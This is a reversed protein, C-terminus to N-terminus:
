ECDSVSIMQAYNPTNEKGIFTYTGVSLTYDSNNVDVGNCVVTKNQNFKLVVNMMKDRQSYGYSNFAIASLVITLIIATIIIKQEKTVETFYHLALFFLGTIVLGAIYAM